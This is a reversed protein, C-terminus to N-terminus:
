APLGGLGMSTRGLAHLLPAPAGGIKSKMPTYALTPLHVSGLAIAISGALESM